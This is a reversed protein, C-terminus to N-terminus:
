LMKKGIEYIKEFIINRAITEKQEQIEEPTPKPSHQPQGLDVGLQFDDNLWKLSEWKSLGKAAEVLSIADGGIGCNFCKFLGLNM